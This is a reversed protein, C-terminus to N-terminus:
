DIGETLKDIVPLLHAKVADDTIQVKQPYSSIIYSGRSKNMINFGMKGSYGANMSRSILIVESNLTAKCAHQNKPLGGESPKKWYGNTIINKIWRLSEFPLEIQNHIDEKIGKSTYSIILYSDQSYIDNTTNGSEDIIITSHYTAKNKKTQSKILNFKMM